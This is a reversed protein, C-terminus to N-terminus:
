LESTCGVIALNGSDLSPTQSCTASNIIASTQYGKMLRSVQELEVLKAHTCKIMLQLCTNHPTHMNIGICSFCHSSDPQTCSLPCSRCPLLGSLLLAAAWRSLRNPRRLLPLRPRASLAMRFRLPLPVCGIHRIQRSFRVASSKWALLGGAMRMVLM